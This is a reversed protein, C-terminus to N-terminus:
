GSHRRGDAGQEPLPRRGHRPSLPIAVRVATGKGPQTEVELRGGRAEARRRMSGLGQGDREVAVDFGKGDDIVDLRLLAAEIRLDIEVRSPGAHRAANSAAEKFILFLDRRVDVALKVDEGAGPARFLLWIGQTSFLEEAQQRMRRVLDALRDRQPSIAWVIDSMAAVSERSIRAIAALHGEAGDGNPENRQRAVESLIAIRTLNAGIDDHLDTAIRARVNAMELLHAVRYRYAARAVAAVALLVLAIFWARRWFPPAVTFAVSATQSGPTGDAAVARVLFRYRGPALSAFDVSREPSAPSWDTKAGELKYQYRLAGDLLSSIAAFDVIVQNQTHDLDLGALEAQGLEAVPVDHGRVRLRTVFVPPPPRSPRTEPVLRALGRPTGFWLAGARDRYAVEVEDDLLGQETGFHTIHGTALDVRDVGRRTGLYVRGDDGETLCTVDNSALGDAQTLTKVRPTAATPSEVWAAGSGNTAIWLRGARDLLLQNVQGVLTAAPLAEFRGGRLRFVGGDVGGFWLAGSGDEAFASPPVFAPVGEAPGYAAVTGSGREWRRMRQDGNGLSVWLAGHSDEHVGLVEGALGAASAPQPTLRALEEFHGVRPLHLLGLATPFWWEGGHDRIPAQPWELTLDPPLRPRAATFRQGDFRHLTADHTVVYLTGDADEFITRVASGALGEAQRFATFGNRAVRVLGRNTAGWINGSVDVALSVITGAAMGQAEGYHRFSRGDHESLGASTGVWVHGDSSACLAQADNSELGDGSTFWREVAAGLERIPHAADASLSDLGSLLDTRLVIVGADAHAIWLRGSADVMLDKVYDFTRAPRLSFRLTRGSSLRVFLGEWTGIWLRGDPDEALALVVVWRHDDPLGLDVRRFEAGGGDERRFLEGDTGAWLAGRRDEFLVNVRNSPASDGVRVPTFLPVTPGAQRAAPNLRAIGGGNTAAWYTGDRAELLDTVTPHPLGDAVGYSQFRSGDFRSLGDRTCAWLFGRSDRVIRIVNNQVLGDSTTYWRVPLQEAALAAAWLALLSSGAVRAALRGPRMPRKM